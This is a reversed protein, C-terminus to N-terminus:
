TTEDTNEKRYRYYYVIGFYVAVIGFFKQNSAATFYDAFQFLLLYISAVFLADNKTKIKLNYRWTLYFPIYFVLTGIIGYVFLNGLIGVDVPYFQKNLSRFGDNWRTSLFGVGLIPHKVFGDLAIKSEM